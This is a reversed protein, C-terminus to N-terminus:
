HHQVSSAGARGGRARRISAEQGQKPPAYGQQEGCQCIQAGWDQECGNNDTTKREHDPSLNCENANDQARYCKLECDECWEGIQVMQVLVFLLLCYSTFGSVM